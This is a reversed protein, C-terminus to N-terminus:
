LFSFILTVASLFIVKYANFNKENTEAVSSSPPGCESTGSVSYGSRQQTLCTGSIQRNQHVAQPVHVTSGAGLEGTM